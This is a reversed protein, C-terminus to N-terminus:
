CNSCHKTFRSFELKYIKLYLEEYRVYIPLFQNVNKAQEQEIALLDEEHELHRNLSYLRQDLVDADHRHLCASNWLGFAPLGSRCFISHL